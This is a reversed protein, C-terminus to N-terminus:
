REQLPAGPPSEPIGPAEIETSQLDRPKVSRALTLPDIPWLTVSHETATLVSDGGQVFRAFLISELPRKLTLHERASSADFVHAADEQTHLLAFRGRFDLEATAFPRPRFSGPFRLLEDGRVADWLRASSDESLSLVFRGDRSLDAAAIGGRHGSLEIGPQNGSLPRLQLLPNSGALLVQDGSPHFRSVTMPGKFEFTTLLEGSGSDWLRVTGDRGATLVQKGDPSFQVDLVGIRHGKLEAIPHGDISSWVRVTSDTDVFSSTEGLHWRLRSGNSATALRSGDPSFRGIHLFEDHGELTAILEGTSAEWLKGKKDYATTLIRAGDPDFEISTIGGAASEEHDLLALRQGTRRELVEAIAPEQGALAVLEGDPSLAACSLRSAAGSEFSPIARVPRLDWWRLTRDLSWSLLSEGNQAFVCGVVDAQHGRLVLLSQQNVRLHVRITGDASATAVLTEDPSFDADLIRGHHGQFRGLAAGTECSWLRAELGESDTLAFRGDRSFALVGPMTDLALEGLREMQTSASGADSGPKWLTVGFVSMTAIRRREPIWRAAEIRAFGPDIRSGAGSPDIPTVGATGDEFVALVHSSQERRTGDLEISQIGSPHPLLRSLLRGSSSAHVLIEGAATGAAIVEGDASVSFARAPQSGSELTAVTRFSSSDLLRLLSRAPGDNEEVAVFLKRDQDVFAAFAVRDQHHLDSRQIGNRADIVRMRGTDSLSLITRGDASIAADVIVSEHDITLIERNAELSALLAQNAVLGPERQAGEISLLLALAPNEDVLSQAQAILRLGAERALARREAELALNKERLAADKRDREERLLTAEQERQASMRRAQDAELDARKSENEAITTARLSDRYLDFMLLWSLLLACFLAAVAIASRRHKHVLKSFRYWASPPGALVPEESLHRTIDAALESATNYRRVRDKELAKMAIWDLDGRLRRALAFPDLRRREAAEGVWPERCQVRASPRTPEVERILRYLDDLGAKEKLRSRDLPVTGVLLEYLLAGLSYIDSRTDVDLPSLNAQETSMYDLTGIMQGARTHAPEETLPRHTAKAVGFDIVKPLPKGNELTVLINSPKIDRHIVGKQHAHQIADCIIVFLQLREVISLRQEDCYRTIPDGAVCEMVFYPRGEETQNADYVKAIASHNMLALAQKENEFRRLTERTDMGSKIVKLAVKRQIPRDQEALYVMGFGGRGLLRLVRFPGIREPLAEAPPLPVSEVCLEPRDKEGDTLIMPELLERLSEHRRLFENPDPRPASAQYQAFLRLAEDLLDLHSSGPDRM